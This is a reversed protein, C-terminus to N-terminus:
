NKKRKKIGPKPNGAVQCEFYGSEGEMARSDKCELIISPASYAALFQPNQTFHYTFANIIANL